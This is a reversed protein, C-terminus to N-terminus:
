RKLYYATGNSYIHVTQSVEVRAIFHQKDEVQVPHPGFNKINVSWQEGQSNLKPPYKPLLLLEPANQLELMSGDFAVEILNSHPALHVVPKNQMSMMQGTMLALSILLAKM